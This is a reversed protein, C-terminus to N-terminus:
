IASTVWTTIESESPIRGSSVVKENIVLGPTSFIDYKMIEDYQTVKEIDAEISLTDIVKRTIAELKKCNPCGSGLVKIVLMHTEKKSDIEPKDQTPNCKPCPCNQPKPPSSIKKGTFLIEHATDVLAFIQPNVVQYYVNWGDRRDQIIGAERLIALQQSIYAQRYGLTAELHCVCAEGQRLVDLILLRAPHTFVKFLKSQTKYESLNMSFLM